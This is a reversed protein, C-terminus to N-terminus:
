EPFHIIDNCLNVMKESSKLPHRGGQVSDSIGLYSKVDPRAQVPFLLHYPNTLLSFHM